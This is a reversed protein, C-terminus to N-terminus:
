IITIIIYSVQIADHIYEEKNKYIIEFTVDKDCIEIVNNNYQKRLIMEEEVIDEFSNKELQITLCNEDNHGNVITLYNNEIPTGNMKVQFVKKFTPKSRYQELFNKLLQSFIIEINEETVIFIRQIYFLVDSSKNNNNLRFFRTASPYETCSYQLETFKSQKFLEENCIDGLAKFIVNSKLGADVVIVFDYEKSLLDLEYAVINEQDKVFLVKEVIFSLSELQDTLFKCTRYRKEDLFFNKSVFLLAVSEFM